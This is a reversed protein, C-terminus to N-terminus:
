LRQEVWARLRGRDLAGASRDAERGGKFLILTPISRISFQSALSQESETNVKIFIAKGILAQAVEAFAPAMMRCPGCWPAWFDAVLPLETSRLHQPLSAATLELPPGTLLAKHCAGCRAEDPQEPLRPEPLRNVRLCHRCVIHKM